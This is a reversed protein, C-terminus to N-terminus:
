IPSFFHFIKETKPFFTCFPNPFGPKRVRKGPFVPVKGGHAAFDPRCAGVLPCAAIKSRLIVAWADQSTAIKRPLIAPTATRRALSQLPFGVPNAYAFGLFQLPFGPKKATRHVAFFHAWIRLIGLGSDRGGSEEHNNISRKGLGRSVMVMFYHVAPIKREGGNHTLKKHFAGENQIGNIRGNPSYQDPPLFTRSLRRRNTGQARQQREDPNHFAARIM